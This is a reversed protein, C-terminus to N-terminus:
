HTTHDGEPTDVTGASGGAAIAALQDNSLERATKGDLSGSHEIGQVPMGDLRNALEKLAALDGAMAMDFTKIALKHLKDPNQQVHRQLARTWPKDGAGLKNGKQFAM